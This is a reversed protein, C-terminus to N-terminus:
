EDNNDLAAKLVTCAELTNKIDIQQEELRQGLKDLHESQEEFAEELEDLREETFMM